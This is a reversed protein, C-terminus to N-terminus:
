QVIQSRFISAFLFKASGVKAITDHTASVLTKLTTGVGSLMQILHFIEVKMEYLLRTIRVWVTKFAQCPMPAMEDLKVAQLKSM